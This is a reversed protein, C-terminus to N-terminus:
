KVKLKKIKAVRNKIDEFLSFVKQEYETCSKNEFTFEKNIEKYKNKLEEFIDNLEKKIEANEKYNIKKGNLRSKIRNYLKIYEYTVIPRKANYKKDKGKTKCTIAKGTKGFKWIKDCYIERTDNAIFFEKCCNCKILPKNIIILHYITINMIDQLTSINYKYEVIKKSAINDFYINVDPLNLPKGSYYCAPIYSSGENKEERIFFNNCNNKIKRIQSLFNRLFDLFVGQYAEYTFQEIIEKSPKNEAGHLLKNFNIKFKVLEVKIFNTIENNIIYKSYKLLESNNIETKLIQLIEMLGYYNEKKNKNDKINKICSLFIKYIHKYNNLIELLITGLQLEIYKDKKEDYLSKIYTLKEKYIKNKDSQIITYELKMEFAIFESLINNDQIEEM